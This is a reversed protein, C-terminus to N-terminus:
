AAVVTNWCSMLEHTLLSVIPALNSSADEANWTFLACLDPSAIAGPMWHGPPDSLPKADTVRGFTTSPEFSACAHFRKNKAHM